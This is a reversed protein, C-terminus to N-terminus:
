ASKNYEFINSYDNLKKTNGMKYEANQIWTFVKNIENKVEFIDEKISSLISKRTLVYTCYQNLTTNNKKAETALFKHLEVPVRLLFKGSYKKSKDEEQPEPISIGKALYDKFLFEKVAELNGIAEDITKGDAVFANKGLQPISALYGGGENDAIKKIEIPYNLKMYYEINKKM